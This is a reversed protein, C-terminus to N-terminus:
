SRRERDDAEIQFQQPAGVVREFLLLADINEGCLLLVQRRRSVSM